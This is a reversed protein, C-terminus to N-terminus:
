AQSELNYTGKSDESAPPGNRVLHFHIVVGDEDHHFNAATM